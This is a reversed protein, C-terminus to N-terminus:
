KTSVQIPKLVPKKPYRKIYTVCSKLIVHGSGLDNSSRMTTLYYAKDDEFELFGVVECEEIVCEQKFEDKTLWSNSGSSHDLFKLYVIV